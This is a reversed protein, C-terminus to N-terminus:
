LVFVKHEWSGRLHGAVRAADVVPIQLCLRFFSLSRLSPRRWWLYPLALLLAPRFRRGLAVGGLAVVFAVDEKRYAWPRWFMAARYGPHEVGLRVMNREALGNRVFFAWGRRQVPHVVVAGSAFAAEWGSEIVRWAAASDEGWWGIEEDFGGTGGGVAGAGAGGAGGDFARRRYFINCAMYEPEMKEVVRWVWWDILRDTSVGEPACTRGQVLGAGPQAAMAALGEELWASDPLCDDDTFALVPASTTRWGLNRAAAPGSNQPTRLVRLRYPVQSILAEVESVTADGSCDDVVVVEFRGADLTQKELARLLACIDDTRKYTPVVVAVDFGSGGGEFGGGSV